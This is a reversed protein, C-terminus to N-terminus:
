AGGGADTNTGKYLYLLYVSEVHQVTLRGVLGRKELTLIQVKTGTFCSFQTGKLWIMGRGLTTSNYWSLLFNKKTGTFCTFQTGISWIM